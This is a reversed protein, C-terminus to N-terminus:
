APPRPSPSGSARRRVEDPQVRKYLNDYVAVPDARQEPVQSELQRAVLQDGHGNLSVPGWHIFMGFRAEAWWQLREPYPRLTASTPTPKPQAADLAPLAALFLATLATTLRPLMIITGRSSELIFSAPRLTSCIDAGESRVRRWTM